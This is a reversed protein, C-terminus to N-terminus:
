AFHKEDYCKNKLILPVSNYDPSAKIFQCIDFLTSQQSPKRKLLKLNRLTHEVFDTCAMTGKPNKCWQMGNALLLKLGSGPYRIKRNRDVWPKMNKKIKPGTYRFLHIPGGRVNIHRMGSIVISVGKLYKKKFEDFMADGGDIHCMYPIGEIKLVIAVHTYEVDTIYGRFSNFAKKFTMQWGNDLINSTFKCRPCNKMLIIDGTQLDPPNEPDLVAISELKDYRPDYCYKPWVTHVIILLLIIVVCVLIDM